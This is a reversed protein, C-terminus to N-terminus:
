SRWYANKFTRDNFDQMSKSRQNALMQIGSMSMSRNANKNENLAKAKENLMQQKLLDTQQTELDKAAREDRFQKFFGPYSQPDATWGGIRSAIGGNYTNGSSSAGSSATNGIAGILAGIPFAM